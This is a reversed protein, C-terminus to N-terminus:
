LSKGTGLSQSLLFHPKGAQCVRRMEPVVSQPQPERALPLITGAVPCTASTVGLLRSLLPAPLWVDPFRDAVASYGAILVSVFRGVSRSRRCVADIESYPSM